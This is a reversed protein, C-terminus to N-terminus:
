DRGRFGGCSRDRNKDYKTKNEHIKGDIEIVHKHSHNYFDVIYRGIPFQRRFKLENLKKGRIVDWLMKEQLTPKLRNKRSLTTVYNPKNKYRSFDNM